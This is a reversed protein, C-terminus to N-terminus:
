VSHPLWTISAKYIVHELCWRSVQLLTYNCTGAKEQRRDIAGVHCLMQLDVGRKKGASILEEKSLTELQKGDVLGLTPDDNERFRKLIQVEM